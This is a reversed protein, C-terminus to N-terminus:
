FYYQTTSVIEYDEVILQPSVTGNWVNRECRGIVNITVCGMASKLKEYEEQSSKFKILSTGNPLLIKLTPNKDASMLYINESSIKVNEIAVYPEDIGQGWISKLEAIEVIDQGRFDGGSFIFDVKYCPTFDFTELAKNSFEIFRNFNEDQIGVGLANAHGEAYM